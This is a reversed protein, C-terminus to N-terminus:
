YSTVNNLEMHKLKAAYALEATEFRGVNVRHYGVRYGSVYKNRSKDYTVGVLGTTNDTRNHHNSKNTAERLNEILNNSRNQDIHDLQDKPWIGKLLLWIVRHALYSKNNYRVCAYGDNSLTGALGGVSVTQYGRGKPKEKFRLSGSDYYFRANALEYTLLEEKSLRLAVRHDAM